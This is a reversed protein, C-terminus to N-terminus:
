FSKRRLRECILEFDFSKGYDKKAKNDEEKLRPITRIFYERLENLKEKHVVFGAALDHGGYRELLHKVNSLLNFISINELM